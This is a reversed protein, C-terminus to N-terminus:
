WYRITIVIWGTIMLGNVALSLGLVAKIGWTRLFSPRRRVIWIQYALAAVALTFFVPQLRELWVLCWVSFSSFLGLGVLVPM